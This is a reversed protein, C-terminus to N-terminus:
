TEVTTTTIVQNYASTKNSLKHFNNNINLKLFGKQRKRQKRLMLAFFNLKLQPLLELEIIFLLKKQYDGKSYFSARVVRRCQILLDLVSEM